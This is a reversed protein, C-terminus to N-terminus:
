AKRLKKMEEIIRLMFGYLVGKLNRMSVRYNRRNKVNSFLRRVETIVERIFLKFAFVDNRLIYKCYFAGRGKAYNYRIRNIEEPLIKGHNHYVILDPSYIIKMGSRLVRHVYDTDEASGIKTGAGLSIDFYGLIDLTSRKILMNNGNGVAWPSCPMEFTEEHDVEKTSLRCLDPSYVRTQGFIMGYEKGSNVIKFIEGMWERDVIVDDDIFVIIEGKAERIGSNRANSLGRKEEFAYAVNLRTKIKFDEVIEKTNDSSNNDVVIIEWSLDEPVSMTMISDLTNKLSKARNYTCIVISVLPSDM